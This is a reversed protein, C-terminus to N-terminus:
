RALEAGGTWAFLELVDAVDSVRASWPLEEGALKRAGGGDYREGSTHLAKAIDESMGLTRAFFVATECHSKAFRKSTDPNLFQALGRARALLPTGAPYSRAARKIVDLPRSFDAFAMSRRLANDDGAAFVAEEPAFGLCGVFRLVSVWYVSTAEREGAVLRSLRTADLVTRLGKEVALGNSVDAALTLAGIVEALRM